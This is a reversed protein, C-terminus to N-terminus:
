QQVYTRTNTTYTGHFLLRGYFFCRSPSRTSIIQKKVGFVSCFGIKSSSRFICVVCWGTASLSSSQMVRSRTICSLTCTTLGLAQSYPQMTRACNAWRAHWVTLLYEEAKHPRRLQDNERKRRVTVYKEHKKHGNRRRYLSSSCKKGTIKEM